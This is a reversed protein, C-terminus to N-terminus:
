KRKRGITLESWINSLNNNFYIHSQAKITIFQRSHKNFVRANGSDVISFGVEKCMCDPVHIYMYSYWRLPPLNVNSSNRKERLLIGLGKSKSNGLTLQVHIRDMKLISAYLNATIHRDWKRATRQYVLLLTSHLPM